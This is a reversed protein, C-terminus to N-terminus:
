SSGAEPKGSYATINASSSGTNQTKKYTHTHTYVCLSMCVYVHIQAIGVAMWILFACHNRGATSKVHSRYFFFFLSHDCIASILCCHWPRLPSIVSGMDVSTQLQQCDQSKFLQEGVDNCSLCVDAVFLWWCIRGKGLSSLKSWVSGTWFKGHGNCLHGCNLSLHVSVTRWHWSSM